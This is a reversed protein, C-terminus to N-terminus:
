HNKQWREDKVEDIGEKERIYEGIDKYERGMVILTGDHRLRSIEYSDISAGSRYIINHNEDNIGFGKFAYFSNM